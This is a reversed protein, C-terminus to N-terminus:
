QLLQYIVNMNNKIDYKARVYNYINQSFKDYAENDTVFERLYHNLMKESGNAFCGCKYENLFNDPNSHLSLIPTKGIGSQIFTNAFGEYLSTSVFVKAEDFYTQIKHFPVKDIFILNTIKMAEERIEKFYNEDQCNFIMVFDLDPNKKALKLFMEARKVRNARGVWLIYNKKEKKKNGKFDFVNRFLTAEIDHNKKLLKKQENTQCVVVSASELGFKYIRGLIKNKKIWGKNVDIINATRHIHKKRFIKCYLGVVGVISNASSTICVDPNEKILLSLYRLAQLGKQFLSSGKGKPNFSKIVKIDNYIEKKSQGFDGVIFSIEHQKKALAKSITYLQVESGGHIGGINPNFLPYVHTAIFCIKKKPAESM